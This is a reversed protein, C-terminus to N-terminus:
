SKTSKSQSCTVRDKQFTQNLDTLNQFPHFYYRVLDSRYKDLWLPVTLMGSVLRCTVGMSNRLPVVGLTAYRLAFVGMSTSTLAKTGHGM